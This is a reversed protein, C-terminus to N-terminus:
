SKPILNTHGHEASSQTDVSLRQTDRGDEISPHIAANVLLQSDSLFTLGAQCLLDVDAARSHLLILTSDGSFVALMQVGEFAFWLNQVTRGGQSYHERADLLLHLVKEARFDAYPLLNVLIQRRWGLTLGNLAGAHKLRELSARLSPTIKAAM